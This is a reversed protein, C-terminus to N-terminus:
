FPGSAWPVQSRFFLLPSFGLRLRFCGLEMPKNIRVELGQWLLVFCFFPPQPSYFYVCPSPFCARVRQLQLPSGWPYDPGAAWKPLQVKMRKHLCFEGRGWGAQLVPARRRGRQPPSAPSQGERAMVSRKERVAVPFTTWIPLVPAM